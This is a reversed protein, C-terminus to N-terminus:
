KGSRGNAPNTQQSPDVVSFRDFWSEPVDIESGTEYSSLGQPNPTVCRVRYLASGDEGTNQSVGVYLWTTGLYSILRTGINPVAM